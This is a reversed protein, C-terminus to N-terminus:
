NIKTPKFNKNNVLEVDPPSAKILFLGHREALRYATDDIRIFTMAGYLDKDARDPYAVKFRTLKELFRQVRGETLATKAEIVVVVKEGDALGDVEHRKRIAKGEANKTPYLKRVNFYFHEVHVGDFKNLLDLINDSVTIAETIEGINNGQGGVQDCMNAFRKDWEAQRQEWEKQRKKDNALDEARQRKAEEAQRKEEEARRKEEEARRKEEEARRKAEEAKRKAEEAQRQKEEEARRKEEEARRKAEEAKRKAEEAERKKDKARERALDEARLRKAEKRDEALQRANEEILKAFRDLTANVEALKNEESM